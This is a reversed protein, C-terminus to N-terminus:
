LFNVEITCVAIEPTLLLAKDRMEVEEKVGRALATASPVNDLEKVNELAQDNTVIKM